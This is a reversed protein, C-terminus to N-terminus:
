SRRRRKTKSHSRSYSRSIQKSLKIIHVTNDRLFQIALAIQARKYRIYFMGCFVGIMSAWWGYNGRQTIKVRYANDEEKTGYFPDRYIGESNNHKVYAEDSGLAKLLRQNSKYKPYYESSAVSAITGVIVIGVKKWFSKNENEFLDSRNTIIKNCIEEYSQTALAKIGLINCFQLLKMKNLKCVDRMFEKFLGREKYQILQEHTASMEFSIHSLDEKQKSTASKIMESSLRRLNVSSKKTRTKKM